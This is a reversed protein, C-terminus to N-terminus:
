VKFTHSTQTNNLNCIYWNDEYNVIEIRGVNPLKVWKMKKIFEYIQKSLFVKRDTNIIRNRNTDEKVEEDLITFVKQVYKNVNRAM